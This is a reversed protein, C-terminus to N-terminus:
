RSSRIPCTGGEGSRHDTTEFEAGNATAPVGPIRLLRITDRKRSGELGPERNRPAVTHSGVNDPTPVGGREDLHLEVGNGPMGSGFSVTSNREALSQSTESAFATSRM